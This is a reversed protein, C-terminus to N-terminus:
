RVLDGTGTLRFIICYVCVEEYSIGFITSILGKEAKRFGEKETTAFGYVVTWCDDHLPWSLATFYVNSKNSTIINPQWSLACTGNQLM